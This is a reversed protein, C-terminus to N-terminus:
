WAPAGVTESAHGISRVCELSYAYVIVQKAQSRLYRSTIQDHSVEGYALPEESQDLATSM